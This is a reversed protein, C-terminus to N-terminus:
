CTNYKFVHSNINLATSRFKVKVLTTNSNTTKRRNYNRNNQKVKVLTTNSNNQSGEAPKEVRFKVKVLTTNSNSIISCKRLQNEKNLKLLLQIQILDKQM